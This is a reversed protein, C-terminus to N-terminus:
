KSASASASEQALPCCQHQPCSSEAFFLLQVWVDAGGRGRPFSLEFESFHPLSIGDLQLNAAIVSGGDPWCIM